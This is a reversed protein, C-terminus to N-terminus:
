DEGDLTRLWRLRITQLARLSQGGESGFLQSAPERQILIARHRLATRLRVYGSSRVNRVRWYGPGVEIFVVDVRLVPRLYQRFTQSRSVYGGLRIQRDMEALSLPSGAATRVARAHMKSRRFCQRMSKLGLRRRQRNQSRFLLIPLRMGSRWNRGGLSVNRIQMGDVAKSWVAGMVKTEQFTYRIFTYYFLMIDVASSVLATSMSSSPFIFTWLRSSSATSLLLV